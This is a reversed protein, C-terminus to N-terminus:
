RANFMAPAIRAIAQSAAWLSAIGRWEVKILKQSPVCRFLMASNTDVLELRAAALDAFTNEAVIRAFLERIRSEYAAFVHALGTATKQMCSCELGLQDM